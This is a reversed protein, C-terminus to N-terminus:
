KVTHYKQIVTKNVSDTMLPWLFFVYRRATVKTTMIEIVNIKGYQKFYDRLHHEETDDKKKRKTKKIKVEKETDDKNGGLVEEWTSGQNQFDDRSVAREPQVVKEDSVNHPRINKTAEVAEMTSM